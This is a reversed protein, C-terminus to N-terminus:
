QAREPLHQEQRLQNEIEIARRQSTDGGIANELGHGLVEHGMIINKPDSINQGSTGQAQYPNGQPSVYVTSNGNSQAVTAGGGFERAVNHSGTSNTFTNSVNVTIVKATAIAASLRNFGVTHTGKFQSEAGAKIKMEYKGTTQNKVVEVMKREQKSVNQLLLKEAKKRELDLM